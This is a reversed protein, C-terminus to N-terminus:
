KLELADESDVMRIIGAASVSEYVIVDLNGTMRHPRVVAIPFGTDSARRGSYSPVDQDGGALVGRSRRM